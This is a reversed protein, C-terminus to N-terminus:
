PIFLRCMNAISFFAWLCSSLMSLVWGWLHSPHSWLNRGDMSQDTEPSVLAPSIGWQEQDRTIKQSAPDQQPLTWTNYLSAPDLICEWKLSAPQVQSHHIWLVIQTVKVTTPTSLVFVFHGRWHLKWPQVNWEKVWVGDAPKYPYM